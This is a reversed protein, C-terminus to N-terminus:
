ETIEKEINNYIKQAEARYKNSVLGTAILYSLARAIIFLEKVSFKM